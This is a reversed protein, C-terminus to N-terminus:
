PERYGAEGAPERQEHEPRRRGDRRDHEAVHGPVLDPTGSFLPSAQRERAQYEAPRRHDQADDQDDDAQGHGDPHVAGYVSGKEDTAPSSSSKISVETDTAIGRLQSKM